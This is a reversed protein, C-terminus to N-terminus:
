GMAPILGVQTLLGLMDSYDWWEVIKNDKFHVVMCGEIQITKNTPPIQLNPSVGSHVSQWTYRIAARDGEIVFDFVTTQQETFARGMELDSQRNAEVGIVDPFPQRHFVFDPAVHTYFADLTAQSPWNEEPQYYAEFIAKIQDPKM